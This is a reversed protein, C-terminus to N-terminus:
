SYYSLKKYTLAIDAAELGTKKSVRIAKRIIEKSFRGDTRLLSRATIRRFITRRM